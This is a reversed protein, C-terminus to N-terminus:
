QVLAHPNKVLRILNKWQYEKYLPTKKMDIIMSHFELDFWEYLMDPTRRKPWVGNSRKVMFNNRFCINRTQFSPYIWKEWWWWASWPHSFCPLGPPILVHNCPNRPRIPCQDLRCGIIGQIILRIKHNHDWEPEQRILMDLYQKEPIRVDMPDIYWPFYVWISLAIWCEQLCRRVLKFWSMLCNELGITIKSIQFIRLYWLTIKKILEDM